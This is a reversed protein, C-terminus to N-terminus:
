AGPVTGGPDVGGPTPPDGPPRPDRAPRSRCPPPTAGRACCPAPRTAPPTATSSSAAGTSSSASRDRGLRRVPTDLRRAPGPRAVRRAADVTDPDFVVLDAHYGEAVRGRDRLGFLRPRCRRHHAARGARALGAPPRAPLRRPVPHHLARRVHPRPPGRRRLRRAARRPPGLRPACSGPATTTTPRSRGCSPACTTRSCSTSRARRLPGPRPEAAIDAVVQGKLGENAASYTDGILYRGWGTSGPSCAPRPSRPGSTSTAHSRRPRAAERHAGPVPLNMVERGTRAAHVARLLQPLEHEDRRADAHDAGGVPGGRAAAHECAALQARYREPERPTSPRARELQAPPPGALTMDAM